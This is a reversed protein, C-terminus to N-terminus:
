RPRKFLLRVSICRGHDRWLSRWLGQRGGGEVICGEEGGRAMGRCRSRGGPVVWGIQCQRLRLGLRLPSGKEFSQQDTLLFDNWGVITGGGGLDEIGDVVYRTWGTDLDFRLRMMLSLIRGQIRASTVDASEEGKWLLTAGTLMRGRIRYDFM